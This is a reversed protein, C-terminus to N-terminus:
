LKELVLDFMYFHQWIRESIPEVRALFGADSALACLRMPDIWTITEQLALERGAAERDARARIVDDLAHRRAPDPNAALLARGGPRLVRHIERFSKAVEDENSLYQLVSYALVRDGCKDPMDMRTISGPAVDANGVHGLNQRARAVMNPSLDIAHVHGVWPAMALAILGTGSGIDILVDKPRPALLRVIEHVTYLFGVVDMLGRGTAQFDTDSTAKADWFSAWDSGAACSTM